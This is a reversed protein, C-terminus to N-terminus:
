GRVPKRSRHRPSDGHLSSDLRGSVQSGSLVRLIKRALNAAGVVRGESYDDLGYGQSAARHNQAQIAEQCAAAIQFLKEQDSPPRHM